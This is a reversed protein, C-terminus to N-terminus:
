SRPYGHLDAVGDGGVEFFDSGDVVVDEGVGSGDVIITRRGEGLADCPPTRAEVLM